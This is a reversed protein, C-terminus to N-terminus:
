NVKMVFTTRALPVDYRFVCSRRGDAMEAHDWTFDAAAKPDFITSLREGFEGGPQFYGRKVRKDLNTSKGNVLIPKYSERHSVYAVEGEQTELKKYHKGTGSDDASRTMNRTCVFDQL